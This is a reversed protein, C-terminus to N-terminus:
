GMQALQVICTSNHGAIHLHPRSGTDGPLALASNVTFVVVFIDDIAHALRAHRFSAKPDFTVLGAEADARGSYGAVSTTKLGIFNSKSASITKPRNEGNWDGSNEHPKHALPLKPGSLSRVASLGMRCSLALLRCVATGGARTSEEIM